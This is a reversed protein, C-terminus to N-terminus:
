IGWGGVHDCMIFRFVSQCMGLESQLINDFMEAVKEEYQFLVTSGVDESHNWM